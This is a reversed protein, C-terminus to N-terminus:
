FAVTLYYEIIITQKVLLNLFLICFTYSNEAM